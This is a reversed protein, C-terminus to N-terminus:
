REAVPAAAGVALGCCGATSGDGAAYVAGSPLRVAGFWIAMAAITANKLVPAIVFAHLGVGIIVIGGPGNPTVPTATFVHSAERPASPAASIREM